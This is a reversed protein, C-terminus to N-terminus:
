TNSLEAVPNEALFVHAAYGGLKGKVKGALKDREVKQVAAEFANGHGVYLRAIKRARPLHVEFMKSMYQAYKEAEIGLDGELGPLSAQLRKLREIVGLNGTNDEILFRVKVVQRAELEKELTMIINSEAKIEALAPKIVDRNLLKFEAYESKIGLYKKLKPIEIWPTCGKGTSRDKSDRYDLGLEYLPLAYKTKKFKREVLLNIKAFMKSDAILGRLTQAMGFRIYSGRYEPEQIFTYFGWSPLGGKDLNNFEVSATALEKLWDSIRKDDRTGLYDRLVERPITLYLVDSDPIEEQCYALLCNYLRMAPGSLDHDVHICASPKRLEDLATETNM